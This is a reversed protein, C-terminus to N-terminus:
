FLETVSYLKHTMDFRTMVSCGYFTDKKGTTGLSHLGVRSHKPCTSHQLFATLLNVLNIFLCFVKLYCCQYLM